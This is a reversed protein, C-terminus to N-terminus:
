KTFFVLLSNYLDPLWSNYAHAGGRLNVWVFNEGDEFRDFMENLVFDCFDEHNALAFDGTGNGNYWFKIDLDQYAEGELTQQFLAKDCWAGSFCGFYSFDELCHLMISNVTTKAGRSLGAFARHDRADEEGGFTSYNADILPLIESRMEKWFYMPWVDALPDGYWLDTFHEAKDAPISYYTPSVVICPECLGTDIMRDLLAQTTRGTETDGLWYDEHGDTGHLAYVVNYQRSADYGYPLYVYLKKEMVFETQGGCIAERDAPEVEPCEGAAVAELAYSHTTYTLTEVTGRHEVPATLAEDMPVQSIFPWEYTTTTFSSEVAASAPLALAGLLVAALLLATFKKM